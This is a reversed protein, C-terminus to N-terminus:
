GTAHYKDTFTKCTDLAEGGSSFAKRPGGVVPPPTHKQKDAVLGRGRRRRDIRRGRRSCDIREIEDESGGTIRWRFEGSSGGALNLGWHATLVEHQKSQHDKVPALAAAAGAYDGSAARLRALLVGCFDGIEENALAATAPRCDGLVANIKAASPRAGAPMALWTQVEFLEFMRVQKAVDANHPDDRQLDLAVRRGADLHEVARKLAGQQIEIRAIGLAHSLLGGAAGADRPKAALVALLAKRQAARSALAGDLNGQLRQCDALWAYANAIATLNAPDGPKRQAITQLQAISSRYYPEARAPDGDQRLALMGQGNAAFVTEM